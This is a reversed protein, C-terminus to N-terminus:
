IIQHYCFKKGYSYGKGYGDRYGNFHGGKYGSTCPAYYIMPFMRAPKCNKGDIFGDHYGQQYGDHHGRYYERCDKGSKVPIASVATATVSMLFCVALLIGLTKKNRNSKQKEM